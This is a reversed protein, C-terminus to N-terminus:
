LVYKWTPYFLESLDVFSFYLTLKLALQKCATSTIQVDNMM